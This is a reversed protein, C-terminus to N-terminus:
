VKGLLIVTAIVALPLLCVAFVDAKFLFRKKLLELKGERGVYMLLFLYVVMSLLVTPMNARVLFTYPYDSSVNRVFTGTQENYYLDDTPLNTCFNIDINAAKLEYSTTVNVKYSGGTSEQLELMPLLSLEYSSEAEDFFCVEYAGDSNICVYCITYGIECDFSIDEHLVRMGGGDLLEVSFLDCNETYVMDGAATSICFWNPSFAQVAFIPEDAKVEVVSSFDGQVIASGVAGDSKEAYVVPHVADVDISRQTVKDNYAFVGAIGLMDTMYAFGYISVILVPLIVFIYQFFVYKNLKEILASRFM